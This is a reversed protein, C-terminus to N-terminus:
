YVVEMNAADILSIKESGLIPAAETTWSISPAAGGAAIFIDSMATSIADPYDQISRINYAELVEVATSSPDVYEVTLDIASIAVAGSYFRVTYTCSGNVEQGLAVIGQLDEGVEVPISSKFWASGSDDIYWTSVSWYAGGGAHSSGWQLVPQLLNSGSANQVGNFLFIIQQNDGSLPAPPVRWSTTMQSITEGTPNTWYAHAVWGDLGPIPLDSRKLDYRQVIRQSSRHVLQMEQKRRRLKHGFPVPHVRSPDRYGGPTLVAGTPVAEGGKRNRVSQKVTAM